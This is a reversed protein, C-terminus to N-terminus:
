SYRKEGGIRVSNKNKEPNIQKHINNIHKYGIKDLDKKASSRKGSAYVQRMASQRKDKDFSNSNYAFNAGNVKQNNEKVFGKLPTKFNQFDNSGFGLGNGDERSKRLYRREKKDATEARLSRKYSMMNKNEVKKYDEDVLSGGLSQVKNRTLNQKPTEALNPMIMEVSKRM